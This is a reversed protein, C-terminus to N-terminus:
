CNVTLETKAAVSLRHKNTLHALNSKWLKKNFIPMGSKCVKQRHM